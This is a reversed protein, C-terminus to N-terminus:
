GGSGVKFDNHGRCEYVTVPNSGTYMCFEQTRAIGDMGWKLLGSFVVYGRGKQIAKFIEADLPASGTMTVWHKGEAMSLRPVDPGNVAAALLNSEYIPQHPAPAVARVTGRAGKKKGAV